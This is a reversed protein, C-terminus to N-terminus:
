KDGEQEFLQKYYERVEEEVYEDYKAYNKARMFEEIMEETIRDDMKEGESEIFIISYNKYFTLYFLLM